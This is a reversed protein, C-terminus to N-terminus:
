LIFKNKTKTGIGFTQCIQTKNETFGIKVMVRNSYDFKCKELENDQTPAAVYIYGPLAKM